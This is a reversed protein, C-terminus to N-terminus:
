EYGHAKILPPAVLSLVFLTMMTVFICIGLGKDTTTEAVYLWFVTGNTAGFSLEFLILCTLVTNPDLRFWWFWHENLGFAWGAILFLVIQISHGAQVLTKRSCMSMTFMSLLCGGFGAAGLLTAAEAPHLYLKGGAKEAEELLDVAFM